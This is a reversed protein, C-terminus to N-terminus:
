HTMKNVHFLVDMHELSTVNKITLHTIIDLHGHQSSSSKKLVEHTTMSPEYTRITMTMKTYCNLYVSVISDNYQIVPIM